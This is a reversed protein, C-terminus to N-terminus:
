CLRSYCQVTGFYNRHHPVCHPSSLVPFLDLLLQLQKSKSMLLRYFRETFANGDIDMVFRYGFDAEAPQKDKRFHLEKRMVGCTEQDCSDKALSINRLFHLRDYEPPIIGSRSPSDVPRSLTTTMWTRQFSLNEFYIPVRQAKPDTHVSSPVAPCRKMTNELEDRPVVVRTEDISSFLIEMDPLFRLYPQVWDRIANYKPVLSM